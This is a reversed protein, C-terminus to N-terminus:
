RFITVEVGIGRLSSDPHIQVLGYGVEWEDAGMAM